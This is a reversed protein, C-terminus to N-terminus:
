FLLKICIAGLHLAIVKDLEGGFLYGGTLTSYAESLDCQLSTKLQKSSNDFFFFFVPKNLVQTKVFFKFGM